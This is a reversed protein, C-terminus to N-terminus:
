QLMSRHVGDFILVKPLCRAMLGWSQWQPMELVACLSAAFEIYPQQSYPSDKELEEIRKPQISNRFSWISKMELKKLAPLSVPLTRMMAWLPENLWFKEEIQLQFFLLNPLFAFSNDPSPLEYLVLSLSQLTASAMLAFRFREYRDAELIEVRLSLLKSPKVLSLIDEDFTSLQHQSHGLHIVTSQIVDQYLHM